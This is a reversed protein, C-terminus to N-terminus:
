NESHHGIVGKLKEPKSQIMMKVIEAYIVLKKPKAKLSKHGSRAVGAFDDEEEEILIKM